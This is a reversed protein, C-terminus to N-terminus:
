NTEEVTEMVARLLELSGINFSPVAFKNKQAVQLLDKMTYLM